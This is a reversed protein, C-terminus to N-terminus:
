FIVPASQIGARELDWEYELQEVTKYVWTNQKPEFVAYSILATPQCHRYKPFAYGENEIKRVDHRFIFILVTDKDKDVNLQFARIRGETCTNNLSTLLAEKSTFFKVFSGTKKDASYAASDTSYLLLKADQKTLFPSTKYFHTITLTIFSDRLERSLEQAPTRIGTTALLFLLLLKKM